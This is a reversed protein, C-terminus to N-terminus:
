EDPAAPEVAGALHPQVDLKGPLHALDARGGHRRHHWLCHQIRRDTDTSEVTPCARQWPPSCPLLPVYWEFAGFAISAKATNCVTGFCARDNLFVAAAIFGAFWFLTTLAEIVFFIATRVAGTTKPMKWPVVFLVAVVMISWIASFLIINTESPATESYFNM